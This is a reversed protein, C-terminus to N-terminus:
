GKQFHKQDPFYNPFQHLDLIVKEERYNGYFDLYSSYAYNELFRMSRSEDKIGIEKWKPECLKIPNLHIYSFIYKLYEDSDLHQSKFKGEFLRGTREYKTNYYMTYATLVKHMFKSIGGDIEQKALIHFHNSMLCYAGISVLREGREVSYIDKLRDLRFNIDSNALYLINLFRVYDNHTHFIKRKDGGRNYLHYHEEPVFPIKRISM